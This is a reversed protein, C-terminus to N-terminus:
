ARALNEFKTYQGLFALTITDTPGNRHKEVIIEAEGKKESEHDYYDERYVFMVVDADQELAGSERLDALRPRRPKGGSGQEPQRSLQSVAVVPVDLEKALIKLARSIESVEQVRNETRRSSQMLQIYDVVVLGLSGEKAKLRRCKARIEGMTISPTDDIYMPAEAIRGVAQSVRRWEAEQMQGSRIKRTDIRAEACIMRQVIEKWSMELSFLVCPLQKHQSVYQAINVALTSKGMSPRAAVLILNGNQMGSLLHDLDTFGTPVGTVDEQRRALMEIHDMTESLLNRVPMFDQHIRQSAVGFMIQEAHNVADEVDDPIDYAEQAILTAADILRRLTAQDTVIRAYFTANAAIPVSSVLTYLYPKGGISELQGRRALEDAVTIADSPEGQSFLSSIAECIKQHADRYFDEPRLIELAEGVMTKSIMMSGLVSEEAELNHPPVRGTSPADRLSGVQAM